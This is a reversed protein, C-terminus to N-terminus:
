QFSASTNCLIAYFWLLASCAFQLPFSGPHDSAPPTRDDAASMKTEAGYGGGVALKKRESEYQLSQMAKEKRLPRIRHM